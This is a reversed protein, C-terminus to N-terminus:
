LFGPLPLLSLPSSFAKGLQTSPSVFFSHRLLSPRTLHVLLLSPPHNAAKNLPRIALSLKAPCPRKVKVRGAFLYHVCQGPLYSEAM